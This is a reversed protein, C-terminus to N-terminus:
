GRRVGKVGEKGWSGGGWGKGVGGRRGGGGASGGSAAPPGSGGSRPPLLLPLRPCLRATPLAAGGPLSWRPSGGCGVPFPSPPPQVGM